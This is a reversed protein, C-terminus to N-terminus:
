APAAARQALWADIAEVVAGANPFREAPSKALLRRTVAAIAPPVTDPLAPVPDDRVARIADIPDHAPYPVGGTLMEFLIAGLAYLDVSPGPMVDTFTEPAMYAPTGLINGTVTLRRGGTVRRATGFDALVAHGDPGLLVNHPKLDRHVIGEGHIAALGSAIGRAIRAAREPELVGDRLIVTALDPGEVFDMVAYPTGNVEGVGHVRVIDPHRIALLARFERLFREYANRDERHEPKLAKVALTRGDEEHRAKLVVGFAGSGHRSLVRVQATCGAPSLIAGRHFGSPIEAGLRQHIEVLLSGFAAVNGTRQEPDAQLAAELREV